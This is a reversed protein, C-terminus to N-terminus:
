AAILGADRVRHGDGGAALGAAAVLRGRHLRIRAHRSSLRAQGTGLVRARRTKGFTDFGGALILHEVQRQPLQTRRCFDALSTFVGSSRADLVREIAVDGFGKVYNYGMRIAADQLSCVGESANVEVPLVKIGHRKADNIVIQPNWFGMPQNNLIGCYFAQPHYRKLWASQYVLVAFAAAHSKPFSYGGFARLTDFIASAVAYEVGQKMAGEIFQQNFSSIAETARKSGLARRLQEGQGGSFGALDRAVKLVQEQFLVVGLTEELAPQVLRHPYVVTEEGFRRRLYPHVMNGQVPGPRILSISVILDNFERPQLRPLVQAQARSEVQFVGITDAHSVMEYVADDDFTLASLDPAAGTTAEVIKLADSVASLMRLGLIDIKVIGADELSEKDWQVVFRDTMTAPETPLRSALPAGMLIMGGNHIGLHRPLGDIQRCLDVLQRWLASDKRAGALDNFGPTGGIDGADYPDVVGAARDLLEPSLGLAKGVDRLASRARFTVLTCAMAAHAQGYRAYVYQIVEERRAADFDIDIDPTAQREDSLFREFLLNHALPNVPSILLLYAVLSNAASGRGQCRIGQERAFRVIDWVILFYNSLGAREIVALEHDLQCEVADSAVLRRTQLGERCLAELHAHASRGEPAPFVPLTQLGFDLQFACQEAIRLSNALAEPTDVFLAALEDGSKLAYEANPRLPGRARAEDLTLLHRIAVLVDQLDHAEATAYHVNNTAVVEVGITRALGALRCNLARDHPLRHHQLEIYFHARGFLDACRQAHARAAAEDRCRLAQVVAGHRCGSLAILGETHQDLVDPPLLAEGKPAHHRAATILACLNSWGTANEVLLTLHQPDGNGDEPALTLEAGFIPRVGAAQAAKQFQVAGYVADHDTLALAPMGLAAAREVLEEPTSAGDLLSYCSHAHLEVYEIM